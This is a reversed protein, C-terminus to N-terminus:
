RFPTADNLDHFFKVIDKALLERQEMSAFHRGAPMETWHLVNYGGEIYKRPPFADEFPFRAIGVPVKSACLAAIYLSM